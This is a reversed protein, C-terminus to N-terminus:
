VNYFGTQGSYLITESPTQRTSYSLQSHQSVSYYDTGKLKRVGNIWVQENLLNTNTDITNLGEGTVSTFSDAVPVFILVGAEVQSALPYNSDVIDVFSGGHQWHLGSILKKGGHYIDKNLFKSDTLRIGTPAQSSLVHEVQGQSYTPILDYVVTDIGSYGSASISYDDVRAYMGEDSDGSRLLYGNAYILGIQNDKEIGTFLNEMSFTSYAKDYDAVLNMSDSKQSQSYIEYIDQNSMKERISVLSSSYSKIDDQSYILLEENYVLNTSTKVGSGTVGSFFSGTIEGTIGSNVYLSLSGQSSDINKVLLNEYGTIGSDIVGTVEQMGSFEVFSVTENSYYPKTFSSSYFSDVVDNKQGQSLDGTILLFQDLYGSFGTYGLLNNQNNVFGGLNIQDSRQYGRLVFSETVDEKTNLFDHVSISVTDFEDKSLSIINKALLEKNHTHIDQGSTNNNYNEVFLSRSNIGVFFGSTSDPSENTALIVNSTNKNSSGVEGSFSIFATWSEAPVGSGVTIASNGKLYGSGDLDFSSSDIDTDNRSIGAYKEADIKGTSPWDLFHGSMWNIGLQEYAENFILSGSAGSFSYDCIIDSNTLGNLELIKNLSDKNM